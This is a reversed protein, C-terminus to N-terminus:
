CVCSFYIFTFKIAQTIEVNQKNAFRYRTLIIFIYVYM